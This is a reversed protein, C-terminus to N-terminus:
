YLIQQMYMFLSPLLRSAGGCFGHFRHPCASAAHEDLLRVIAGHRAVGRRTTSTAGLIAGSGMTVSARALADLNRRRVMPLLLAITGHRAAAITLTVGITHRVTRAACMQAVARISSRGSTALSRHGMPVPGSMMAQERARAQPTRRPVSM